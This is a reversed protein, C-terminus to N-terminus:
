GAVRTRGSAAAGGMAAQCYGAEGIGLQRRRHEVGFRLWDPDLPKCAFIPAGVRRAQLEQDACYDNAVLVVPVHELRESLMEYLDTGNMDPLETNIIWLDPDLERAARLAARGTGLM